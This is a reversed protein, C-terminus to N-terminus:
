QIKKMRNPLSFLRLGKLAVVYNRKRLVIQHENNIGDVDCSLRRSCLTAILASVNPGNM